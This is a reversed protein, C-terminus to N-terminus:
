TLFFENRYGTFSKGGPAVDNFVLEVTPHHRHIGIGLRGPLLWSTFPLRLTAPFPLDQRRQEGRPMGYEPRPTTSGGGDPNRPPPPTERCCKSFERIGW